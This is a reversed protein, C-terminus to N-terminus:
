AYGVMGTRLAPCGPTRNMKHKCAQITRTHHKTDPNEKKAVLKVLTNYVHIKMYMVFNSNVKKDPQSTQRAKGQLQIPSECEALKTLAIGLVRFITPEFRM